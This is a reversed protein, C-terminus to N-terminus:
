FREASEEIEPQDSNNSSFSGSQHIELIEADELLHDDNKFFNIFIFDFSNIRLFSHCFNPM